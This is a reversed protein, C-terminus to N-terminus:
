GLKGAEYLRTAKLVMKYCTKEASSLPREVQPLMIKKTVARPNKNEYATCIVIAAGGGSSHVTMKSFDLNSCDEQSDACTACMSGKPQYNMNDTHAVCM